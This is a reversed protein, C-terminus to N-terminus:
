SLWLVMKQAISLLASYGLGVYTNISLVVHIFQMSTEIKDTIINVPYYRNEVPYETHTVIIGWLIGGKLDSFLIVLIELVYYECHYVIRVTNASM